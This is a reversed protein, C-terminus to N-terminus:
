KAIRDATPGTENISRKLRGLIDLLHRKDSDDLGAFADEIWAHHRPLMEVLARQGAPTLRVVQARRDDPAPQREVLGEGVLREILGTVNGNTVMLRRSLEGMTLGDPARDLQAMLDFRPLTIGFTERLGRRVQGEILSTCTLLRLWVRLDLRDSKGLSTEFDGGTDTLNNMPGAM